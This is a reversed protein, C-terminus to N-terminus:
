RRFTQDLTQKLWQGGPSLDSVPTGAGLGQSSDTARPPTGPGGFKRIKEAHAKLEAETSGQLLEAFEAAQEGPVGASLAVTLKLIQAEATEARTVATVKEDTVTQLQSKTTDLEAKADRAAIRSTAAQDNAETMKDRAWQPLSDDKPPAPVPPVPAPTATSDDSM